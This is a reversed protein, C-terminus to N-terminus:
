DAQASNLDVTVRKVDCHRGVFVNRWLDLLPCFYYNLLKLGVKGQFNQDVATAVSFKVTTM